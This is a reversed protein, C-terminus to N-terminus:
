VQCTIVNNHCPLNSSILCDAVLKYDRQTLIFDKKDYLFLGNKESM